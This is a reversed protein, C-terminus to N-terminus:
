RALWHWKSIYRPIRSCSLSRARRAACRCMICVICSEPTSTGDTSTFYHFRDFDDGSDAAVKRLFEANGALAADHRFRARFDHEFLGILVRVRQAADLAKRMQPQDPAKGGALPLSPRRRHARRPQAAVRAHTHEGRPRRKAGIGDPQRGHRKLFHPQVGRLPRHEDDAARIQHVSRRNVIDLGIQRIGVAVRLRRAAKRLFLPMVRQRDIKRRRQLRLDVRRVPRRQAAHQRM